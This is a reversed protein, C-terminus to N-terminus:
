NAGPKSPHHLANIRLEFPNWRAILLWHTRTVVSKACSHRMANMFPFSAPITTAWPVNASTLPACTILTRM